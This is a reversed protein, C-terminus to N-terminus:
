LTKGCFVSGINENDVYTEYQGYVNFNISQIKLQNDTRISRFPVIIWSQAQSKTVKVSYSKKYFFTLVVIKLFFIDYTEYNMVKRFSQMILIVWLIKM